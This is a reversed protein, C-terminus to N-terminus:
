KGDGAEDKMWRPIDGPLGLDNRTARVRLEQESLYKLYEERSSERYYTGSEIGAFLMFMFVSVCYGVVPKHKNETGFVYINVGGLLALVAPLVTGMVAIRSIGSVYGTVYGTLCVPVGFGFYYFLVDVFREKFFLSSVASFGVAIFSYILLAYGLTQLSFELPNFIYV